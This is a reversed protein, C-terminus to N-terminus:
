LVGLWLELIYKAAMADVAEKSLARYGGQDFLAQRAEVTSLREDVEHVPLSFKKKLSNSFNKAHKTIWQQTGDMNLPIGVVLAKPQWEEVLAAIKKWDPKGAINLVTTLPRATKTIAQGTALGIYKKGYDFGIVVDSM